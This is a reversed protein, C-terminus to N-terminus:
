EPSRKTSGARRPGPWPLPESLVQCRRVRDEAQMQLIVITEALDTGIVTEAGPYAVVRLLSKTALDVM